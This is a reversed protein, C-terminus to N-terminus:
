ASKKRRGFATLGAAGAGFLALTTPEPATTLVEMGDGFVNSHFESLEIGGRTYNTVEFGDSDLTGVWLTDTGPDYGLGGLLSAGNNFLPGIMAMTDPNFAIVVGQDGSCGAPCFSIDIQDRKSDYAVGLAGLPSTILGSPDSTPLLFSSKVNGARDFCTISPSSHEVRCLQQRKPDWSMDESFSTRFPVVFSGTQTQGDLTKREVGGTFPNSVFLSTGDTAVGTIDENITNLVTGTTTTHYEVNGQDNGFWLTIPSAMANASWLLAAATLLYTKTM